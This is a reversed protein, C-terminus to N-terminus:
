PLFKTDMADDFIKSINISRIVVSSGRVAGRGKADIARVLDREGNEPSNDLPYEILDIPFILRPIIEEAVKRKHVHHWFSSIVPVVLVSFLLLIATVFIVWM